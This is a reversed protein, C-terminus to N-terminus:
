YLAHHNLQIENGIHNILDVNSDMIKLQIMTSVHKVLLILINYMHTITKITTDVVSGLPLATQCVEHLANILM